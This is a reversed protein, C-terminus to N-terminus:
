ITRYQTVWTTSNSSSPTVQLEVNSGSINVALSGTSAGLNVTGFTSYDVSTGDTVATVMAMSYKLGSSDYGKVLWEIGTVGTVSVTSVTQNATISTTIVEGWYIQTNGIDVSVNATLTNATFTNSTVNGVTLTGSADLNGAYVNDWRQTTAGLDYTLNANPLLDSTVNATVNLNGVNAVGSTAFNGAVLNGTFNATNGALELNVTLNPLVVNGSFNATNGALELNVTANNVVINGSFNATNGTIANNVTLANTITNGSVNANAAFVTANATVNAAVVNGSFNAHNGALELNVSINPVVVNGSFNATNGTLAVNITANNVTLNANASINNALINGSAELDTTTIKTNANLNAALVNGTLDLSTGTAAGINPTTLQANAKVVVNGGAIETTINDVNVSFVTGTLTLGQGAQYTGAGSFQVFIVPSTGVTTVPDTMVWGTDNYDDGNQVFTFDGGAMETPTDFDTARTLVTASDVVYIGNYATNTEKYVLIRSGVVAQTNGDFVNASLYNATPSGSLVLNAGVGSTGNNYTITGGTLNALTDNGATYCPAHVHLGQAIDDVYQKTAADSSATPAGLNQIKFNGVNVHGNGTPRLEVYNDGAAAYLTLNGGQATVTNSKVAGFTGDGNATVYGIVNAGVNSVVVVNGAGTASLSINGNPTIIVNSNGNYIESTRLYNADAINGLNANLSTINGSFNATNGDFQNNVTVTAGSLVVNGTFNATNGDLQLNVTLNNVTLNSTINANAVTLTGTVNADLTTLTNAVNVYNAEALNGLNANLSNINGSFNGTVANLANTASINNANAINGTVVLDGGFHGNGTVGVGGAVQIAGTIDSTANPNLVDVKVVNGSGAGPNTFVFANAESYGVSNGSVNGLIALKGWNSNNNYDGAVINVGSGSAADWGGRVELATNSLNVLQNDGALGLELNGSMSVLNSTKNFTFANSGTASGADSFIVTTNPATIQLNGQVNGVFTKATIVANPSFTVNGTNDFTTSFGNSTLTLNSTGSDVNPTLLTNTINANGTVKLVQTADNYTFNASAGFNNSGDNYQIQTNSGAAEQLDWPNGNAYLLNDTRVNGAQMTGTVNVNTSVNVFNAEALNGLNANLASLNSSVGLTGTINAGTSSVVLVNPTGGVGVEVNGNSVPISVNSTGNLIRSTDATTWTLNGTGDTQLYQNASGGTIKVNGVNGLDTKGSVTLNSAVNVFNATALNGLNANNFQANGIVTLLNTSTDFTFNASAGFNNLGDNFQIQTNSGAAEQLDWPVGNAYYLNDTLIGYAPNSNSVALNGTFTGKNATIDANPLIVNAPVEGVSFGGVSNLPKLAM